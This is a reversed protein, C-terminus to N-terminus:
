AAVDEPSPDTHLYRLRYMGPTVNNRNRFARIFQTRGAYGMDRAVDDITLGPEALLNFARRNLEISLLDSYKLGYGGLFRQLTRPGIALKAALGEIDTKGLTIRQYITEQIARIRSRRAAIAYGEVDARTVTRAPRTRPFVTPASLWERRFVVAEAPKGFHVPIGFLDELDKEWPGKKYTVEIHDPSWEQGLYNRFFDFLYHLTIDGQHRWASSAQRPNIYGVGIQHRGPKCFQYGYDRGFRTNNIGRALGTSLSPASSIYEGFPGLNTVSRSRGERLGFSRVGTMASARVFLEHMDQVAIPATNDDLIRIPLHQDEFIRELAAPGALSAVLDPLSGLDGVTTFSYDVM